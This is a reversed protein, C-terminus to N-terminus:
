RADLWNVAGLSFTTRRQDKEPGQKMGPMARRGTAQPPEVMLGEEEGWDFTLRPCLLRASAEVPWLDVGVYVGFLRPSLVSQLASCAGGQGAGQGAGAAGM